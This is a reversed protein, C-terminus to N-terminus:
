AASESIGERRDALRERRDLIERKAKGQYTCSNLIRRDSCQRRDRRVKRRDATTKEAKAAKEKITFLNKLM